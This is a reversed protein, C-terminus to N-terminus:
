TASLIEKIYALTDKIDKMQKEGSIEREIVFNGSYGIARLRRVVEPINALGEGVRVERGLEKGSTPYFGDKIHTDMVHKGFVTIADASNGKGYLILNATDM